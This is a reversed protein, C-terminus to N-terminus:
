IKALFLKVSVNMPVKSANKPLTDSEMAGTAGTRMRRATELLTDLVTANTANKQLCFIILYLLSFRELVYKIALLYPL